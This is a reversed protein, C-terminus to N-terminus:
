TVGTAVLTHIVYFNFTNKANSINRDSEAFLHSQHILSHHELYYTDDRDQWERLIHLGVNRSSSCKCDLIYQLQIKTLDAQACLIKTFIWFM